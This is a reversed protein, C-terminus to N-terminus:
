SSFRWHLTVAVLTKLKQFPSTATRSIAGKNCRCGLAGGAPPAFLEAKRDNAYAEPANHMAGFAGDKYLLM